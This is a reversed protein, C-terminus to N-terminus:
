EFSITKKIILADNLVFPKPIMTKPREPVNFLSNVLLDYSSEYIQFTTKQNKPVSFKFELADEDTVYFNFLSNSTRDHFVSNHNLGNSLDFGNISFTNFVTLSDSFLEIRNVARKLSLVLSIHRTEGIISDKQIELYPLALPKIDTQKTFTFGSNYKSNFTAKSELTVRDPHETLFSKTWDDLMHDYTAWVASNTDTDLLYVLSNPKPHQEDFGSNIHASIFFGLAITFFVYYLQKKKSFFGFVSILLVFSLSILLTSAVIMKLGLGVPFMKVFPSLIFLTPGTLFVLLFLNTEKQKIIVWLSILGFILPIIFFSAGKLKLAIASCIILWLFLPSVMLSGINKPNHFKHYVLFCIGIALFSFGWIYAHGNYTFGHLIENYQPYISKLVSWGFFGILGNIILVLLLPLFGKIIDKGKLAKKHIGYIMLYIFLVFSFILMPLIWSFPYSITKFLPVNFYVDDFESKLSSLDANAFYNLLPMLYSGQHELTNRDLREYTDLATHYDFHDDIFAFNFGGVDGEERL